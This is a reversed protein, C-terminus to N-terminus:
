QKPFNSKTRPVQSSSKLQLFFLQGTDVDGGRYVANDLFLELAAQCIQERRRHILSENQVVTLEAESLTAAAPDPTEGDGQGRAM